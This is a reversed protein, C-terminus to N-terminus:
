SCGAAGASALDENVHANDKDAGAGQTRGIGGGSTISVGVLSRRIGEAARLGM